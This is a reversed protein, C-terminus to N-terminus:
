NVRPTEVKHEVILEDSESSIVADDFPDESLPEGGSDTDYLESSTITVAGSSLDIDSGSITYTVAMTEDSGSADQDETSWSANADGTISVRIVEDGADDVLAIYDWQSPATRSSNILDRISEYGAEPLETPM